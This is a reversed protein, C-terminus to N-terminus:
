IRSTGILDSSRWTCRSSVGGASSCSTPRERPIEVSLLGVAVLDDSTFTNTSASRSASPDFADFRGGTFGSGAGALPGYYRRLVRVAREENGPLMSDTLRVADSASM